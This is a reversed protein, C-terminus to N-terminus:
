RSRLQYSLVPLGEGVGIAEKIRAHILKYKKYYVHFCIIDLACYHFSILCLPFIPRSLLSPSPVVKVRSNGKEEACSSVAIELSGSILLSRASAM